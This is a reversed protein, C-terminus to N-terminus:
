TDAYSLNFNISLTFGHYNFSTLYLATFLIRGEEPKEKWQRLDVYLFCMKKKYNVNTYYLLLLKIHHSTIYYIIQM